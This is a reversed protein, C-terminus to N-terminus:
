SAEWKDTLFDLMLKRAIESHIGSIISHMNNPLICLYSDPISEYLQVPIHVPFHEDRDGHVILTKSKITSLYPPTFNVDDYSDALSRWEEGIKMIQEDGLHHLSRMYEWKEETVTDPSWEAQIARSEKTLYPSTCMLVMKEIREPQQTAMHLLTMGGSSSGMANFKEINLHELLKFMDSASQKHTFPKIPNTSRGRGRHDPIILKFHKKYEPILPKFTTGTMSFGHLMLLPTGEGHVEYYMEIDNVEIKPM